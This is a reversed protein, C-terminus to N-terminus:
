MFGFNDREKVLMGKTAHALRGGRSDPGSAYLQRNRFRGFGLRRQRGVGASLSSIKKNAQPMQSGRQIPTFRQRLSPRGPQAGSPLSVKRAGRDLVWFPPLQM